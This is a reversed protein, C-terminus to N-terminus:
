DPRRRKKRALKLATFLGKERVTKVALGKSTLDFFKKGHRALLDEDLEIGLGPRDPIAITGNADALLSPLTDFEELTNYANPGIQAGRAGLYRHVGHQCPMLGTLFTARTPSCVANNAYCRSFLTGEAALKDINPTKIKEQGYCGLEAYGLDDALIYDRQHPSANVDIGTPELDPLQIWKAAQGEDWDGAAPVAMLLATLAVLPFGARRAIRM